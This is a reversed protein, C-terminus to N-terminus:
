RAARGAEILVMATNFSKPFATTLADFAATNHTSDLLILKRGLADKVEAAAALDAAAIWSNAYFVFECRYKGGSYWDQIAAKPYILSMETGSPLAFIFATSDRGDWYMGKIFGPNSFRAFDVTDPRLPASIPLACELKMDLPDIGSVTQPPLAAATDRGTFDVSMVMSDEKWLHYDARRNTASDFLHFEAEKVSLYFLSIAATGATVKGAASKPYAAPIPGYDVRFQAQVLREDEANGVETFCGALCAAM